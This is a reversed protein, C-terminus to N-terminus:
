IGNILRPAAQPSRYHPFFGTTSPPQVSLSSLDAYTNPELIVRLAHVPVTLRSFGRKFRLLADDAGGRGGGLILRTPGSMALATIRNHLLLKLPSKALARNATAGLHYYNIEGQQLFIGGATVGEADHVLWLEVGSLECLAALYDASFFYGSSAGIRQMNETYINHFVAIDASREISLDHDKRLDYRLQKRYGAVLDDASRTLDIAVVEGVEVRIASIGSANTGSRLAPTENALGLRLYAAIFGQGRAAEGFQALLADTDIAGTKNPVAFRDPYGYVSVLDSATSGPIEHAVLGFTEGGGLDFYAPRGGLRDAELAVFAPDDFVQPRTM